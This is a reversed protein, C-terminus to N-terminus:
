SVWGFKRDRLITAERERGVSVITVPTKLFKEVWEVYARAKPPLDGMKRASSLDGAFGPLTKYVPKAKQVLRASIPFDVVTKGNIKYAVCVKIPHLDSLTDLKTMALRRIGSIQVARKLQVLDLWGIRRPRGTTAGYEQGKERLADGLAKPMETPFPGTGIRTVYAKTVGLVDEIVTPGVGAGACVGGAVTSSSTVFPYTGLDLDLAVGQAGEFLVWRKSELSKHLLPITDLCYPKLLPAIKKQEALAKKRLDKVSGRCRLIEPRNAELTQDLLATFADLDLYDVLQVGRRAAKDTYCPGIGKKTTGIPRDGSEHVADLLLHHPLVVHAGHSVFLRGRVEIGKSRVFEIEELFERPNIVVGNGIIGRKGPFLVGAPVLHLAMKEGRHIVTHGANNGGQYRVIDQAKLSLYHVIKGKGEDGWQAGVVVLNPM